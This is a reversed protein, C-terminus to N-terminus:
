YVPHYCNELKPCLRTTFIVLCVRLLKNLDEPDLYSFEAPFYIELLLLDRRRFLQVRFTM